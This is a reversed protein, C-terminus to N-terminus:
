WRPPTSNMSGTRGINTFLSPVNHTHCHKWCTPTTSSSHTTPTLKLVSVVAFAGSYTHNIATTLKPFLDNVKSSPTKLAQNKKHREWATPLNQFWLVSGKCHFKVTDLWSNVNLQFIQLVQQKRAGITRRLTATGREEPHEITEREKEGYVEWGGGTALQQREREGEREPKRKREKKIRGKRGEGPPM